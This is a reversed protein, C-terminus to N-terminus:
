DDPHGYNCFVGGVFEIAPDFPDGPQTKAEVRERWDEASDQPVYGLHRVKENSFFRERNDSIGYAVTFGVREATLSRTVLQVLDRFSLWTALHRRDAPEPFCSNIRLCVSEIGFKM